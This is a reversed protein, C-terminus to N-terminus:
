HFRFREICGKNKVNFSVVVVLCIPLKCLDFLKTTTSLFHQLIVSFNLFTGNRLIYITHALFGSRHLATPM